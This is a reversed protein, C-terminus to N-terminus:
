NMCFHHEGECASSFLVFQNSHGRVERTSCSLILCLVYLVDVGLAAAAIPELYLCVVLETIKSGTQWLRLRRPLPRLVKATLWAPRWALPTERRTLRGNTLRREGGKKREWAFVKSPWGSGRRRVFSSGFGGVRGGGVGESDEGAKERRDRVWDGEKRGLCVMGDRALSGALCRRRLLVM